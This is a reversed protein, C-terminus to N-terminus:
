DGGKKVYPSPENIPRNYELKPCVTTEGEIVLEVIGNRAKFVSALDSLTM